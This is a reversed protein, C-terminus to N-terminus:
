AVTRTWPTATGTTGAATRILVGAAHELHLPTYVGSTFAIVQYQEIAGNDAFFALSGVHRYAKETDYMYWTKYQDVATISILVGDMPTTITLGTDLNRPTGLTVNDTGPWVPATPTTDPTPVEGGRWALWEAESFNPWIAAIINDEADLWFARPEGTTEDATWTNGLDTRQLWALRTEEAGIDAWDPAPQTGTARAGLYAAWNQYQTFSPAGAVPLGAFTSMNFALHGSASALEWMQRSSNPDIWNWVDEPVDSLDPPDVWWSPPTPEQAPAGVAALIAEEGDSIADMIALYNTNAMAAAGNITAEGDALAKIKTRYQDYYLTYLTHVWDNIQDVSAKVQAVMVANSFLDVLDGFGPPEPKNSAYLINGATVSVHVAEEGINNASVDQVQNGSADGLYGGALLPM